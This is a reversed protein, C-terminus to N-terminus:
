RPMIARYVLKGEVFVESPKISKWEVNSGFPSHNLVVFDAHFGPAIRGIRTEAFAAYAGSSTYARLADGVSINNQPEWITGNMIRGTVATEMGLFPNLDVVPWDSGFAVVAGADLLQKYAYSTHIREPGIHKEAYRGDDAKHYPQMSAIVGLDAFRQIDSPLLHQAHESRCRSSTLNAYNKELLDLLLHNAEDGIAHVIAQYGNASALKFNKAYTGDLAGPRPLGRFDEPKDPPNYTFPDHMYATHSGLSGDMYAKLGKIELWNPVAPFKKAMNIEAQWDGGSPYLYFRMSPIPNKAITAYATMDEVGPIDSV